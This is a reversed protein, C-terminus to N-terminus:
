QCEEKQIVITQNEYYFQLLQKHKEVDIGGKFINGIYLGLVGIAFMLLGGVLYISVVITTWGEPIGMGVFYRITLYVIYLLSAFSIIFGIGASFRLPKNTQSLICDFAFLTKKWFGYSSKGEYRKDAPADIATQKFGLWKIFLM